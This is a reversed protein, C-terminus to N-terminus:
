AEYRGTSKIAKLVRQPICTTAAVPRGAQAVM